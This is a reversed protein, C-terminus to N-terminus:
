GILTKVKEFIDQAYITSGCHDCVTETGNKPMKIPASCNPCKLATLVIGGKEIFTKLFSFDILVPTQKRELEQIREKVQQLVKERFYEVPSKGKPLTISKLQIYELKYEGETTLVIVHKTWGGGETIAKISELPISLKLSYTGNFMKDKGLYALRRNTLVVTGIRDEKFLKKTRWHALIFEEEELPLVEEWRSMFDVLKYRHM